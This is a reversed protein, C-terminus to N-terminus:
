ILHSLPMLVIGALTSFLALRKHGYQRSSPILEEISIYLMIGAVFAFSSGVVFGNLYPRLVFFALLAGIPEAIGALFTFKLAKGKDKTAFYVPMAVSVGEPINHFAIAIGLSIGLTTDSYGAMFTAIGEPFNHLMIALTSVVGVRFLDQHQRDAEEYVAEHPVLYDLGLAILVGVIVFLDMWVIGMHAGKEAAILDRAQPVLDSFSISLMVGAAFGLSATLLKENRGGGVFIVVTGLMTSLGAILSIALAFLAQQDFM